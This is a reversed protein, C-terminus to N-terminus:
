NENKKIEDSTKACNKDENYNSNSSNHLENANNAFKLLLM